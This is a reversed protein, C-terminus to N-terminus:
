ITDLVRSKGQQVHQEALRRAEAGAGRVMADFVARHEANSKVMNATFSFYRRRFRHLDNALQEYITVARQNNSFALIMMHYEFNHRYYREGDDAKTAKDMQDLLAALQRKREANLLETARLAGYGMLVARMDFIDLMEKVSLERVFMGRNAIMTVLRRAELGRLAERVPARSVGLREALAAENVRQGPALKGSSILAEIHEAVRVSLQKENGRVAAATATKTKM